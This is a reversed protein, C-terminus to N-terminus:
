FGEEDDGFSENEPEDLVNKYESGEYYSRCNPHDKLLHEPQEKRAVACSTLGEDGHKCGGYGEKLGFSVCSKAWKKRCNPHQEFLKTWTKFKFTNKCNLVNEYTGCNIAACAFARKIASAKEKAQGTVNSLAGAGVQAAHSEMQHLRDAAAHVQGHLRQRGDRLRAIMADRQHDLAERGSELGHYVRDRAIRAHQEATERGYHAARRAREQAGHAMHELRDRTHHAAQELREKGHRVRHEVEDHAHHAARRARAEADHARHGMDHLGREVGHEIRQKGSEFRRELDRKEEAVYREAHHIGAAVRREGAVFADRAYKGGRHVAEGFRREARRVDDRVEDAFSEEGYGDSPAQYADHASAHMAETSTSVMMLFLFAISFFSSLKM